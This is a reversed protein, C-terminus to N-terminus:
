VKKRRKIELKIGLYIGISTWIVAGIHIYLPTSIDVLLTNYISFLVVVLIANLRVKSKSFFSCIFGALVIYAARVFIFISGVILTTETSLSNEETLVLNYKALFYKFLMRTVHYFFVLAALSFLVPKFRSISQEKYINKDSKPPAYPNEQNMNARLIFLKSNQGLVRCCM